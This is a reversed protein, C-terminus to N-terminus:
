TFACDGDGDQLVCRGALLEECRKAVVWRRVCGRRRMYPRAIRILKNALNQNFVTLSWAALPEMHSLVVRAIEDLAGDRWYVYPVALDRDRLRLMVFGIMENGSSLVKVNLREFRRCASSFAYRARNRDQLPATLVWPYKAIWSLEPAGRRTLEDERNAEIFGATEEDIETVYEVEADTRLARRRVFRGLFRRAALDCNVVCDRAALAAWKVHAAPGRQRSFSHSLRLWMKVGRLEQVTTFRNSRSYGTAAARTCSSVGVWGDWNQLAGLLLLAAIPDGALAPDRWWGTLWGFRHAQGRLFVRDPLIGLYAVVRCGQYAALLVVDDERARPNNVHSLARHRTIPLVDRRWYEPDALLGRLKALTYTEVRV